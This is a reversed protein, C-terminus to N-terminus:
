FAQGVAIHLQVRNFLTKQEPRFRTQWLTLDSLRGEEDELALYLPGERLDYANYALDVRIPGVPTTIRLGLGPTVVLSGGSLSVPSSSEDLGPAWVQGVDVFTALRTYQAFFPSPGRLELSSLLIQTGGLPFTQVPVDTLPRRERNVIENYDDERMVYTQPGLGNIPFGRVSNPGGGYFRREPPLRGERVAAAGAVFGGAQLRAALAWGPRLGLYGTAEGLISLYRDDSLLVPSAWAVNSRLQYGRTTQGLLSTRDLSASLTAANTWRANRLPQQELDTCATFLVCFIAPSAATSGRELQLGTGVLIGRGAERSVNTRAGVSERLYLLLEAQREMHLNTSLRTRTGLLRPQLFDAALRYTVKDSFLDNRLDRCLFNDGLGFDLPAGVGIKAASASLELTRGGGLFNRDVARTGARLCDVTGFGAAGDVLYKPSEVIRIAVTATTSDADVQLSDPAIEVAAYNVIGLQYLARQSETLQQRQLIRGERVAIQQRITSGGLQDAGLVVISDVRVVPGPIAQFQVEAIDAITDISYNRLVEAYAYGRRYLMAQVTDAAALFGMRRFPQGETLPLERNLEEETLIGEVGDVALDTLTVRDGPVIGFRISVDGGEGPEMPEVAPVVRTGYYGHDRYYLHLRVIDGYLETLDLRYRRMGSICLKRPLLAIRCRPAHAETIAALSDRPLVLDGVFEVEGAFRGEYEAFGPFPGRAAPNQACASLLCAVLVGLWPWAPRIGSPSASSIEMHAPALSRGKRRLRGSSRRAVIYSGSAPRSVHTPPPGGRFPHGAVPRRPRAAHAM